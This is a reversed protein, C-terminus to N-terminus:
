RIEKSLEYVSESFQNYLERPHTTDMKFMLARVGEEDITSIYEDEIETPVRGSVTFVIQTRASIDGVLLEKIRHTLGKNRMISIYSIHYDTDNYDFKLEGNPIEFKERVRREAEYKSPVSQRRISILSLVIALTSLAVAVASISVM